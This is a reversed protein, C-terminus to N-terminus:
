GGSGSFIPLVYSIPPKRDVIVAITVETGGQIQSPPGTSTTWAYGSPVNPNPELVAHVEIKTSQALLKQVLQDNGTMAKVAEATVPYEGVVGIKAKIFGYEGARVNSPLVLAEMGPKIRKGNGSNIYVVPEIGAGPPEVTAVVEGEKVLDGVRKKVEVVRGTVTSQVEARSSTVAGVREFARRAQAVKDEGQRIRQQLSRIQANHSAIEADKANLQAELNAEEREAQEVSRPTVLGKDLSARKRAVDERAKQLLLQTNRKDSDAGAIKSRIGAITAENEAKSIESERQAQDLNQRATKIEESSGVQTIEGVLQGDKVMDSIKLTLKTLTGGGSARVERIGGGRVVIGLGEIREPISGVLSWVIVAVLTVGLAILAIWGQPSTVKMLKEQEPDATQVEAKKKKKVPKAPAPPAPQAAPAAEEAM